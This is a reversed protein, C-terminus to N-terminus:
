RLWSCPPSKIQQGNRLPVERPPVRKGDLFTGNSSNLDIVFWAGESRVFQAHRRSIEEHIDLVERGVVTRGVVDGDRVEIARGDPSVLILLGEQFSLSQDTEKASMSKQEM